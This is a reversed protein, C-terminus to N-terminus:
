EKANQIKDILDNFFKDRRQDLIEKITNLAKIENSNIFYIENTIDSNNRSKNKLKNKIINFGKNM